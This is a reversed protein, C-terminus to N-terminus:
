CAGFAGDVYVDSETCFIGGWHFGTGISTSVRFWQYGNWWVGTEDLVQIYEGEVLSGMRRFSTGPGERLIGGYSWAAPGSGNMQEHFERDMEIMTQLDGVCENPVISWLDNQGMCDALPRNSATDGCMRRAEVECWSQLDQAQAENTMLAVGMVAVLPVMAISRLQFM